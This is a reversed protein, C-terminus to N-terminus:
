FNNKITDPIKVRQGSDVVKREKLEGWLDGFFIVDQITGKVPTADSSLWGQIEGSGSSVDEPNIQFQMFFHKGTKTFERSRFQKEKELDAIQLKVPQMQKKTYLPLLVKRGREISGYYGHRFNYFLTLYDEYIRDAKMSERQIRTKGAPNSKLFVIEGAAYDFRVSRLAEKDGRKKKLEFYVPQLRDQDSLYRCFSTYSYKVGGMLFDIFGVGQGELSLRYIDPLDTRIFGTKAEGCHGILWFGIQYSLEEGLYKGLISTDTTSAATKALSLPVALLLGLGHMLYRLCDRRTM